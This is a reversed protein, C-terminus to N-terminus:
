EDEVKVDCPAGDADEIVWFDDADWGAGVGGLVASRGAAVALAEDKTAAEVQTFASVTIQASLTFKPM